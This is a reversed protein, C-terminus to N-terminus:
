SYNELSGFGEGINVVYIRSYVVYPFAFQLLKAGDVLFDSM